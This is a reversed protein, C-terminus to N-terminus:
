LTYGDDAICYGMANLTKGHPVSHGDKVTVFVISDVTTIEQKTTKNRVVAKLTISKTGLKVLEVGIEVIDGQFAPARFNIDSMHATVLSSTELQCAAFVAAELDVWELCRGGFLTNAANLDSPLVLHRTRFQM